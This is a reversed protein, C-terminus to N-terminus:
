LVSLRPPFDDVVLDSEVLVEDSEDGPLVPDPESLEDLLPEDDDLEDVDLEDVPLEVDVDAAAPDEDDLEDADDLQSALRQPAGGCAEGAGCM